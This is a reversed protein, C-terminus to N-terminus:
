IIFSSESFRFAPRPEQVLSYWVTGGFQPLCNDSSYSTFYSCFCVDTVYRAWIQFPTQGRTDLLLLSQDERYPAGPGPRDVDESGLALPCAATLGTALTVPSQRRTNHCNFTM